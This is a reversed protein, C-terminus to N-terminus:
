SNIQYWSVSGDACVVGIEGPALLLKQGPGKRGIQLSTRVAGVGDKSLALVPVSSPLAPLLLGYLTGAADSGTTAIVGPHGMGPNSAMRNQYYALGAKVEPINIAHRDVTGSPLDISVVATGDPCTLALTDTSLLDVHPMASWQLAHTAGGEIASGSLRWIDVAAKDLRVFASDGAFVLRGKFSNGLSQLLEASGTPDLRVLCNAQNRGTSDPFTIATLIVGGGQIGISSYTARPLDCQWVLSGDAKAVSFGWYRSPLSFYLCYILDNWVVLDQILMRPGGSVARFLQSNRHPAIGTTQANASPTSLLEGAIVGAAGGVFERRKM